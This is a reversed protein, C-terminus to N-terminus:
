SSREATLVEAAGVGRAPTTSVDGEPALLRSLAEVKESGSVLFVARRAANIAPFTLTIRWADLKAVFSAVVWREREELAATGPFLSATHGDAGLGLVVLDLSPAEEGAFFARLKSEYEAAARAPDADEGRMRFQNVPPVPVHWLLTEAAMKFNSDKHHAPVCREDTFFVFVKEWPVSSAIEKQALREYLGRPTSGGSLAVTFRGREAVARAASEVFAVAGARAMEEAAAFSRVTRGGGTM